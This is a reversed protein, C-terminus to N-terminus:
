PVHRLWLQTALGFGIMLTSVALLPLGTNVWLQTALGFGIMLGGLLCFDAQELLLMLMTLLSSILM